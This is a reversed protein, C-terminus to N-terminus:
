CTHSSLDNKLLQTENNKNTTRIDKNLTAIGQALAIIYTNTFHFPKLYLTSYSYYAFMLNSYM